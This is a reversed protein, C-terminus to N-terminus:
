VHARGIQAGSLRLGHDVEEVNLDRTHAFAIVARVEDLKEIFPDNIGKILVEEPALTHPLRVTGASKALTATNLDLAVAAKLGDEQDALVIPKGGELTRAAGLLMETAPPFGQLELIEPGNARFEASRSPM